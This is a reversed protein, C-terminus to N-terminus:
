VTVTLGLREIETLRVLLATADVEALRVSVTEIVVVVVDEACLLLDEVAVRERDAVRM